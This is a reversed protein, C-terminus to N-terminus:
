SSFTPCKKHRHDLKGIILCRRQFRLGRRCAQGEFRSKLLEGFLIWGDLLGRLGCGVDNKGGHAVDRRFDHRGHGLIACALVVV